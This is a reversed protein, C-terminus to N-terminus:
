LRRWDRQQSLQLVKVLVIKM